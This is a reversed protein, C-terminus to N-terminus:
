SSAMPSFCLGPSVLVHLRSLAYGVFLESEDSFSFRAEPSILVALTSRVFEVLLEEEASSWRPPLLESEDSLAFGAEPSMLVALASRVVEVLLESEPSSWRVPLVARVDSTDEAGAGRSACISTSSNHGLPESLM